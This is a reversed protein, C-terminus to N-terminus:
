FSGSNDNTYIIVTTSLIYVFVYFKKVKVKNWQIFEIYTNQKFYFEATDGDCDYAKASYVIM